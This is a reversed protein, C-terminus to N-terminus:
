IGTQMRLVSQINEGTEVLVEVTVNGHRLKEQPLYLRYAQKADATTIRFAAYAKENEAVRVYVRSEEDLVEEDLVGNIEWFATNRESEAIELSTNTEVEVAEKELTVELSEMLPPNEAFEGIDREVKELIVVSPQYEATYETINQPVGRSFYGESFQNAFLPLLTSGFSDRFMLLTGKKERNETEIWAEEASATDTKYSFMDEIQYAYNWEPKATVPYLMNNLDGYEEKTRLVKVTEYREHELGLQEMVANYVLVAGKQNWHSDRKLYLVEDEAAFLSFLDTWAIDRRDLEAKLRDMNGERGLKKQLYYPMNEGYLSNKNPAVVLLFEAGSQQVYQQVLSLNYGANKIEQESLLNRGLYDDVTATYYLWGDTGVTVTDVNSVRFIRSQIEADVSVMLSRFGFHDEFYAGADQLFDVNWEGNEKLVPLEALERNETTTNVPKVLMGIFPLACITLCVVIFGIKGVNRMM